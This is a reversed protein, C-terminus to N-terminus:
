VAVELYSYNFTRAAKLCASSRWSVHVGTLVNLTLLIISLIKQIGAFIARRPLVVALQGEVPSKRSVLAWRRSNPSGAAFSNELVSTERALNQWGIRLEIYVGFGSWFGAACAM